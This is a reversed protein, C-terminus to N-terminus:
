DLEIRRERKEVMRAFATFMFFAFLLFGLVLLLFALIDDQMTEGALDSSYVYMGGFTTQITESLGAAAKSSGFLNILFGISIALEVFCLMTNMVSKIAKIRRIM